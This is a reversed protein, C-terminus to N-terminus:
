NTANKYWCDDTSPSLGGKKTRQSGTKEFQDIFAYYRPVQYKPMKNECWDAVSSLSPQDHGPAVKIFVKIDEEGLEGPVGIVASEEVDPHENIIREVEWASVNEGNHRIADKSRGKFYLYGEKDFYGLDGTAFWGDPRMAESTAKPNRFYGEMVLGPQKGKAQIEGIEGTPAITGDDRMIRVDFCPVPKGISGIKGDLNASTISSCETMGYAERIQVGFRKEFENWIQKSAGAGWAIKVLHERDNPHVPQKLLIPLVGGLYHVRTAKYHRAQDWFRSASFRPLLAMLSGYIMCVWIMQMGGIHCFSEWVLMIDNPGAETVLAASSACTRLMRDTLPVGKPVGTTGSTFLLGLMEDPQTGEVDPPDSSMETEVNELQMQRAVGSKSLDAGNQTFVYEINHIGGRSLSDNMVDAFTEDVVLARPDSLELLLDLNKGKLNTNLPIYVLGIKAFALILCFFNPHNSLMIAVRDGRKMGLRLFGQAMRNVKKDLEGYTISKDEFICFVSNPTELARKELWQKTTTDDTFVM